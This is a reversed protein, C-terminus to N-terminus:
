NHHTFDSMMRSHVADWVPCSLEHYGDLHAQHVPLIQPTAPTSPLGHHRSITYPKATCLLSPRCTAPGFTDSHTVSQVLAHEGISSPFITRISKEQGRHSRGEGDGQLVTSYLLCAPILHIVSLLLISHMIFYELFNM